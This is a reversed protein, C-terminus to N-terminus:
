LNVKKRQSKRWVFPTWLQNIFTKPMFEKIGLPGVHRKKPYYFTGFLMDFIMLNEGYNNNGEVSKRSHHWRHLNPTNFIYNFFGCNLYINCHTLLGIFATISSVWIFIEGPVGIIFLIPISLLLSFLTDIFHFRGTNFFWLREVSHHVSHFRWLTDYSHALRHAWYLGIESIILATLIQIAMPIDSSWFSYGSSNGLIEIIGSIILLFATIQILGKTLVTHALDPLEQGDSKLWGKRYPMFKELLFLSAALSLYIFNFYITPRGQQIGLYVVYIPVGLLVPWSIYSLLEKVFKLTYSNDNILKM